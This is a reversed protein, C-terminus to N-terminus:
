YSQKGYIGAEIQLDANQETINKVREPYTHYEAAKQSSSIPIGCNDIPLYQSAKLIQDADMGARSIFQSNQSGGGDDRLQTTVGKSNNIALQSGREFQRKVTGTHYLDATPSRVFHSCLQDETYERYHQHGRRDLANTTHMQERLMRQAAGDTYNHARGQTYNKKLKM